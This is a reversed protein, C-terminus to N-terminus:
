YELPVTCDSKCLKRAPVALVISERILPGLDISGDQIPWDDEGPEDQFLGDVSATLPYEYENMCRDCDLKVATTLKGRVALGQPDHTITLEGDLPQIVEPDGELMAPAPEDHIRYSERSGVDGQLNSEVQITM